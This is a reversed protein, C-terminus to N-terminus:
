GRQKWVQDGIRSDSPFRISSDMLNTPRINHTLGERSDRRSEVNHADRPHKQRKKDSEDSKCQEHKKKKKKCKYCKKASKTSTVNRASKSGNACGRM